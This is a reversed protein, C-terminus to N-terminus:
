HETSDYDLRKLTIYDEVIRYFLYTHSLAGFMNDLVSFLIYKLM